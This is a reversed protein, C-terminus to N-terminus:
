GNEAAPIEPFVVSSDPSRSVVFQGAQGLEEDAYLSAAAINVTPLNSGGGGTYGGLGPAQEFITAAALGNAGVLYGSGAALALNVTEGSSGEDGSGDDLPTISVMVSTAGAPITASTSPTYDVNPIADGSESFSVTLAQSLNETSRYVMFQAAVDTQGSNEYAFPQLALVQVTSTLLVRRELGEYTLLHETPWRYSRRRRRTRERRRAARLRVATARWRNWWPLLGQQVLCALKSTHRACACWAKFRQWGSIRRFM